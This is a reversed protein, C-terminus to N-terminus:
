TIQNKKYSFVQFVQAFHGMGTKLKDIMTKSTTNIEPSNLTETSASSTLSDKSKLGSASNIAELEKGLFLAIEIMGKMGGFARKECSQNYNTNMNVDFTWINGDEDTVYEIAAVEIGMSALFLEYQNIIPHNFNEIVEFDTKFNQVQTCHDAPCLEFSESNNVRTAYILKGGVFECRTIFPKPPKIYEQLLNVGDIPPEYLPDDLYKEFYIIEKFLRVSLGKGSRNHKIIFPTNPFNEEAELILNRKYQERDEFNGTVIITRPTKIGMRELAAYQKVKSLELSLSNPGNVIRRGWLQLWELVAQTHEGAFRHGRTHSSASMRNYFVGEPPPKTLDFSGGKGLNWEIFDLGLQHFAERLPEMWKDNEHIVYICPKISNISSFPDKKVM